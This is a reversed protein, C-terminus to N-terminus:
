LKIGDAEQHARDAGEATAPSALVLQVRHFRGDDVLAVISDDRREGDLVLEAVDELGHAKRVVEIEYRAGGFRFVATYGSWDRPLCPALSLTSGRIRIGLIGEIGARYLWAASGTYWSWGGRGVHPPESYVDGAVAYPEAKYQEVDERSAVRAIPNLYSFIEAAEDGRGLMTNAIVVWTGAHTYQGGNERIGPPYGKIYGPDRSAPGFPPTFLVVLRDDRRVLQRGVADMARAARGPEAAGSITAWSQAISDIRCAENEASGLPTGDDFYARRYWEGDWGAEALTRALSAAASEWNAIRAGENRETAIAIFERLTRYLLWGLWVSEGKGHVGVRNMGDNWDGTGILPLGHEGFRLSCDLALACHEFLSATHETVEPRFYADDADPSLMPGDLFPVLEDLVASDGTTAVYHATAHALWARDDSIRTRVGHGSPPLWWHQVDGEVFQRSAARLLHARTIDPRCLVLAMSDQLQDRFGYAGSAQYFASRAWMRCALTQYLAWRNLLLDMARDPTKVQIVGLLDSWHADVADLVEDVDTTRYRDILGQADAITAAQGLLVVVEAAANPAIDLTTRLAACADLGTGTRGSLPGDSSGAAPRALTGHRGIFERRDSTWSTQKGGLDFFAVHDGFTTNWPNRALLAGTDADVDTVISLLSAGHSPGLVWTAYAMVSLRRARGSVNRVTLRSIKVPDDLPVLQTLELAIGRTDNEFRSYGPGHRAVYRVNDEMIPLATPGWLEGTDDDRVYLVEGPPDSVPDNSWPTLQNEKSSQAWTYGSGEVSVQFGFAPNAVVNIWPMPTPASGLVETVYERGDASFGGFGNYRELTGLASRPRPAVPSRRQRLPPRVDPRAARSLQERLTGHRATLLVRAIALLAARTGAAILDARLVFVGGDRAAAGIPPAQTSRVLSELAIQLDQVYSAGRENLIVLDTPLQKMRWYAHARLAQRVAALDQVDEVRLVLIPLDGSIGHAWLTPPAAIGRRIADTTARMSADAYLLRGALRQLLGAEEPDIGLHHLQVQAQTWALTSARDFANPDHHKDALDIVENRSSAVVTWYAIHVSKGAPVRVRHRLAFVPDLVTGVTGSLRADGDLAVPKHVDRGRGLFRARDTEIEPPGVVESGEVVALHAAWIEPETPSRRGRTALILGPDAIWETRVFMKSFAPHAADAAPPALVLEAYSTIEITREASAANGITVRRVEGDDEPSVVVELTTVLSGDLRTITARDETFSADYSDPEVCTPQYGASWVKGTDVDRVYIYSGWDDCTPDERWRTVAADKWHSYGSGVASVMVAYRGNSLLQTEPAATHPLRIRRPSPLHLDRIPDNAQTKEIHPYPAMVERPRREQLLLETAQVTAESHFRERMEGSLLADAIAVVTMGQHHAMFARVIAVDAGAPVRAPTYDLAEYYGYRGCAGVAALRAFNAAAATPDVMAALATAYPAIVINNGLGRKLGLGPVGFSSYQYTFELDRVNYASESIGWPVGLKTAFAIQRRVILHSSHELVSGIPARMVLSPMLYEFMSGSWSVLAAGGEVSTVNRGLRFWHRAPVDRKAIAIFSALRAESALLDYCNPDLQGDAVRYGISLLRRERDFLFGFDMAVALSRATGGVVRLRRTLGPREDASALDRRHSEISRAVAAVWFIVNQSTEPELADLHRCALEALASAPAELSRLKDALAPSDDRARLLTRRMEAIAAEFSGRVTDFASDTAEVLSSEAISLADDIGDLVVSERLAGREWEDCANALAILHGALNGSDVTSVYQPELGRLDRTDYWNLFHGRIRTMRELTALTAELRDLLDLTGIWGFDRASAAALMYLGINTPSTRSAAIPKPVEQFNDPPLWSHEETVFTEFFRWTRRAVLRLRKADESALPEDGLTTPPRSIRRAIAPSAIWVVLFPVALWRGGQPANWVILAVTGVVLLTGAMSRYADLLTSFPANKAQSATVWDLLHRHSILLRYLTRGIADTMLWAQHALLAILLAIRTVALRFDAALARLHSAPEVRAVRPLAAIVPFWMPLALAGLVFVTWIAAERLPLTWGICLAAVSAPATLSRRLNDIMKWRGIRPLSSARRGIAVDRRGLLWPLLQWDGRVWRHQRASAADYRSPFEEVLEVDSVFGSRAYTGEFLDHSLVTNDPVRGSLSAEFADVDYIGKGIYSGEGFLDQYVDSVTFAYPDIGSANSFARQFSTAQRRLPLAHTVRPQLVGYGAVVRGMQPDFRARNLPHAMKGILRHASERPMRTDSDLTIVYRVGSPLTPREGNIAVFTTHPDGRLLRNLEHLKGRKREWGIWRRQRDNWIRHRHLLYFRKGGPGPGHRENLRAIGAVAADLLADDQDTTETEADTWDSLLAFYLEGETSALYHVELRDIQEAVVREDTLLMPVVLMTRLDSPIGDELELGPLPAARMELTIAANVLSISVDLAPALGFFLLLALRWTLDPVTGYMALLPLSLVLAALTLGILVLGRMGLAANFRRTWLKVPTRFGIHKEFARRTRGILPYGPDPEYSPYSETSGPPDAAFAIARAAVDLETMGSGRALEEIANRYLDRTPFDMEAFRSHSRLLEDTLSVGEVIDAWDVDSIRRMSTIVNRVTVNTGAQSLHEEQVVQDCNTRQLALREELWRLVRGVQPGQDRLRHVLQVAFAAPVPAREYRELVARIPTARQSPPTLVIDALADAQVRGDRSMGIRRAARRLNEVLVIRLTIAVAWLEGITLPQVSQYARLFRQLLEPEFRSDTHAVFAWAVGFVRPYGAFPGSALKPLQRYYQPPLDEFIERIQEEVIHQNDLLWEASPTISVGDAVAQALSGHADLLIRENEKLRRDLPRVSGVHTGIPQEAALSKAHQELREASFLESRITEESDWPVSQARSAFRDFLEQKM